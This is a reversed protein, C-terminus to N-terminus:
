LPIGINETSSSYSAPVKDVCVNAIKRLEPIFIERFFNFNDMEQHKTEVAWPDMVVSRMCPIKDATEPNSLGLRKALTTMFKNGYDKRHFTTQTIFIPYNDVEPLKGEHMSPYVMKFIEKNYDQLRQLKDNGPINFIYDVINQDPGIRNVFQENKEEKLIDALPKDQFFTKKLYDLADQNDYKEMLPNFPIVDFKDKEQKMGCIYIYFLRANLLSKNIIKGYGERTPRILLHSMFVAAAAAGPKSGELGSEGLGEIVSGNNTSGIYPAGFTVLNVMNGNRYSLSGAPYAVYGWKHPDITVSDALHMHNLQEKVYPKLKVDLDIRQSTEAMSTSKRGAPEFEEPWPMNFNERVVSLLYGGWAADTHINFDLIQNESRLQNRFDLMAKLPDVASEETTGIVAVLLLVPKHIEACKDLVKKLLDTNMRGESDVFVNILGQHILKEPDTLEEESLAEGHGLGLVSASKPWSYHKTSPVIVAPLAINDENLGFRRYVKAIGLTNVSYKGTLDKWIAAEGMDPMEAAIQKTLGLVDDSPLNIQEWNSLSTLPKKVGRIRITINRRDVGQYLKDNKLAYSVALPFYKLERAAWLAEMNAITGDCTIHAWSSTQTDDFGIMKCIDKAVAAELVTTAPGGQLAVNNPNQLMTTVYGLLAPLTIDWNMHGQYRMSPFPMSYKNIIDALKGSANLVAQLSDQYAKSAKIAPTIFDPDHPYIEQRGLAIKDVAECIIQKVAEANEGRTGMFWGAIQENVDAESWKTPQSPLDSFCAKIDKILERMYEPHISQKSM